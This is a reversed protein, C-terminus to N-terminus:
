VTISYTTSRKSNKEIWLGDKEGTGNPYKNAVIWNYFVSGKQATGFNVSLIKFADKTNNEIVVYDLTWPARSSTHETFSTKGSKNTNALTFVEEDSHGNFYLHAKINGNKSKSDKADSIQVQLSYTWEQNAASVPMCTILPMFVCIAMITSLLRKIKM